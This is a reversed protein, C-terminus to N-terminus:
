ITKIDFWFNNFHCYRIAADKKGVFLTEKSFKTRLVIQNVYLFSKSAILETM